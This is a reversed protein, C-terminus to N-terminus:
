DIDAGPVHRLRSREWNMMLEPRRREIWEAVLRTARAPFQWGIIQGDELSFLAEFGQYYAHLHPPLHERWYM